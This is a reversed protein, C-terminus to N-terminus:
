FSFDSRRNALQILEQLRYGKAEYAKVLGGLINKEEIAEILQLKLRKYRKDLPVKTKRVEQLSSPPYPRGKREADKQVELLIKATLVELELTLKDVKKIAQSYVRHLEGLQRPYDILENELAYLSSNDISLKIRNPDFDTM